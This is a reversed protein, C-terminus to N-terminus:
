FGVPPIEYYRFLEQAINRFTPAATQSGWRLSEPTYPTLHFTVLMIFKPADAPAFGVFSAVVRDPYYGGYPSAIQATGTKGAVRYGNIKAGTGESRDVVNLMYGVVQEASQRSMVQRPKSSDREVLQGNQIIESVVYPEPLVGRNAIAAVSTIMQLPTVNLGQGYGHTALQVSDWKSYVIGPNEYALDVEMYDGFGYGYIYSRFIDPGMTNALKAMCINNSYELCQSLSLRGRGLGDWNRITSIVEGKSNTFNMEGEDYITDTSAVKGSDLASAVTLVKFVSGPEYPTSVAKNTYYSLRDPLYNGAEDYLAQVYNNPDFDPYNAMAVIAGDTPDMVIVTASSASYAVAAERLYSEVMRQISRDITLILTAGHEVEDVNNKGIPIIRRSVDQERQVFGDQGRLLAEYYGEVGYKGEGDRNVYGLVHSALSGDPYLRKEEPLIVIGKIGLEKVQEAVEDEQWHRLPVYRSERNLLELLQAEDIELVPSLERAALVKDEIEPPVAYILNLTINHALPLGDSAMIDGRKASLQYEVMRQDQARAALVEKQRIQLNGLTYIVSLFCFVFFVGVHKIRKNRKAFISQEEVTRRFVM